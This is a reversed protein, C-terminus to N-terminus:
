MSVIGTSPFSLCGLDQPESALWQTGLGLSFSQSLFWFLGLTFSKQLTIGLTSREDVYVCVFHVPADTCVWLGGMWSCMYISSICSDSPLYSFSPSNSPLRLQVALDFFFSPSLFLPPFTLSFSPPGGKSLMCAIESSTGIWLVDVVLFDETFM